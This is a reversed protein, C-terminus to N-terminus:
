RSAAPEDGLPKWDRLMSVVAILRASDIPKAV